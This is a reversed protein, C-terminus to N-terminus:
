ETVPVDSEKAESKKLKVGIGGSVSQSITSDFGVAYLYYDGKQLGSFGYHASADTTASADYIGVNTGPFETAGYKIYVVSHPIALTHHKVTGSVSSKGGLGEKKCSVAISGLLLVAIFPKSFKKM